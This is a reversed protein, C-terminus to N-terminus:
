VHLIYLISNLIHSIHLIGITIYDPNKGKGKENEQKINRRKENKVTAIDQTM